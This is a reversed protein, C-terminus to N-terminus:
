FHSIVPLLHYCLIQQVTDTSGSFRGHFVMKANITVPNIRGLLLCVQIGEGRRAFLHPSLDPLEESETVGARNRLVNLHM